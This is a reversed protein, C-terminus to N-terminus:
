RQSEDVSSSMVGDAYGRAYEWSVYHSPDPSFAPEHVPTQGSDLLRRLNCRFLDWSFYHPEHCDDCDIVIGSYGRPALLTQFVEIDQLDSLVDEREAPDLPESADESALEAAPDHPDSIFPDM